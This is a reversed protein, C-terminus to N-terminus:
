NELNIVQDFKELLVIKHTVMIITKNSASILNDIIKKETVSDLSSTPEDLIIVNSNKYFARAISIRQKQGGSLKVGGPGLITNIGYNFKHIDESLCALKISENLRFEDIDEHSLTINTKITDEIIVPDQTVYGVNELWTNLNSSIDWSKDILVQGNDPKYFGLIVKLLTTKGCGSRGVIGNLSNKQISFNLNNLIINKGKHKTDKFSFNIDKLEIIKNFKLNSKQNSDTSPSELEHIINNILFENKKLSQLIVSFRSVAPILRYSGALFLSMIEPLKDFEDKKDIYYIIIVFSIILIFEFIPKPLEAIISANRKAILNNQKYKKFIKAFFEIKFYVKIENISNFSQIAFNNIKDGSRVWAEGFKISFKKLFFGSLIAIILIITILLLSITSQHYILLGAIALFIIAESILHLIALLSNSFNSMETTLYNNFNGVTYNQFFSFEKSFYKKILRYSINEEFKNIFNLKWWSFYIILKNKILYILLLTSLSILLLVNLSLSNLYDRLFFNLEIKNNFFIQSIPLIIFVALFEFITVIALLIYFKFIDLNLKKDIVKLIKFM